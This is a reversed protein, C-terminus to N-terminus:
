GGARRRERIWGDMDHWRDYLWLERGPRDAPLDETPTLWIRTYVTRDMKLGSWIDSLTSMDDLGVHGVLGVVAPPANTIAAVVGRPKPPLLFEMARSRDAFVNLGATDLHEIARLRRSATFNGGEPFIVLADRSTMTAALDAIADVADSGGRGGPAVFRSPLRNLAIDIVPDWQLAEKLVVRPRHQFRNMVADVLLLSDGPGAHRAMLIVPRGVVDGEGVRDGEFALGFTFRASGVVRRLFWAMLAYHASRFGESRLKWGFGSAVWLVFLAMVTISEFILWVLLFWALRLPRWRGPVYRSAFAAGIAVVPLSVILAVTAAIVAPGLVIRRIWRPPLRM